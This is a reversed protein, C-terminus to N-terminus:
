LSSQIHDCIQCKDQKFQLEPDTKDVVPKVFSLWIMDTVFCISISHDSCHLHYFYNQQQGSNLADYIWTIWLYAVLPNETKLPILDSLNGIQIDM